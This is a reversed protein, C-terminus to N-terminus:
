QSPTAANWGYMWESGAGENVSQWLSDPLPTMGTAGPTMGTGGGFAMDQPQQQQQNQQGDIVVRDPGKKDQSQHVATFSWSSSDNPNPMAMNGGLNSGFLPAESTVGGTNPSFASQNQQPPTFNSYSGPRNSSSAPTPHSSYSSNSPHESQVYGPSTGMSMVQPQQGYLLDEAPFGSAPHLHDMKQVKARDDVPTPQTQNFLPPYM